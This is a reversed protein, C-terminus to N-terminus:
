LLEQIPRNTGRVILNTNRLRKMSTNYPGSAAYMSMTQIQQNTIAGERSRGIAVITSLLKGEMVGLKANWMALLQDGHPLRLATPVKERGKDTAVIQQGVGDIFGGERLAKLVTNMPGSPAYGSLVGLLDKSTPKKRAVLVALLAKAMTSLEGDSGSRAKKKPPPPDDVKIENVACLKDIAMQMGAVIGRKHEHEVTDPDDDSLSAQYGRKLKVLIQVREELWQQGNPMPPLDDRLVYPVSQDDRLLHPLKKPGRATQRM